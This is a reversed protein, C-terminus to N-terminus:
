NAQEYLKYYNDACIAIDYFANFKNINNIRMKHISEENLDLFSEIAKQFEEVTFNKTIFGNSENILNKLGGAPTTIVPLGVSLAELASIPLGENLSSMLFADATNLYDAVNTKSGLIYTNCAKIQLLKNLYEKNGTPDDGIILHIINYRELNKFVECLLEQNKNQDLRGVSIFVSTQDNVKLKTVEEKVDNFKDTTKLKNIGNEILYFSLNKFKNKFEVLIDPSICVFKIKRNIFRIKNLRGFIRNKEMNLDSHLTHVFAIEPFLLVLPLIYKITADLHFHVVDPKESKFIKYLKSYIRLDPGRKKDFSRLKVSDNLLKPLQMRNEIERLSIVFVNNKKGSFHNSLEVVIKEAGGNGISNIVQIIKM